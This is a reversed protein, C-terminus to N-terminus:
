NWREVIFAMFNWCCLREREEILDNEDDADINDYGLVVFNDDDGGTLPLTRQKCKTHRAESGCPDINRTVEEENQAINEEERGLLEM